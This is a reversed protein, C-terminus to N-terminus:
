LKSLKKLLSITAPAMQELPLIKDAYGAKAVSGPMGWVVSSAEDQVCIYAGLDSLIECGQLGDHGMGTFVLGLVKGKFTNAIGRFLVDAAPRCSNEPPGQSLEISLNGEAKVVSMHYDGPAIYINGPQPHQHHRAEHCPLASVRNIREALFKPFLPPMHQVVFIPLPFNKPLAEFFVPLANPGGTSSAICVAEIERTKPTTIKSNHVLNAGTAARNPMSKNARPVLSHIRPVIQNRIAEIGEMVNRTNTPKTVYDTAGAKLSDITAEAGRKTLTSFMIVPIDKYDKRLNKVTEIGDMEPMEIDMIIIDPKVQQVKQLAIKGNAAVGAVEIEEYETLASKILQRMVVADDVVLVRIPVM